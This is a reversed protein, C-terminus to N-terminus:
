SAPPPETTEPAPAAATAPADPTLAVDTYAQLTNQAQALYAIGDPMDQEVIQRLPELRKILQDAMTGYRQVWRKVNKLKEEAEELARKAKNVAARKVASSEQAGALRSSYLDAEAQELTKRRRRIESEWHVRRDNQLWTQMRRVEDISMDLSRKAKTRFVILNSRFLELADLSTVKAQNAM